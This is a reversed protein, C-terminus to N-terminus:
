MLVDVSCWKTSLAQSGMYCVSVKQGDIRQYGSVAGTEFCYAQIAAKQRQHKRERAQNREIRARLEKRKNEHLQMGWRKLKASFDKKDPHINIKDQITDSTVDRCKSQKTEGLKPPKTPGNAAKMEFSLQQEDSSTLSKDEDAYGNSAEDGYSFPQKGTYDVGDEAGIESSNDTDIIGSKLSLSSPSPSTSPSSALGDLLLDLRKCVSAPSPTPGSSSSESETSLSAEQCLDPSVHIDPSLEAM